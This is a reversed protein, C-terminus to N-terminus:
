HRQDVLPREHRDGAGIELRLNQREGSGEGREENMGLVKGGTTPGEGREHTFSRNM